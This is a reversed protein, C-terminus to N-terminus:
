EVQFYKPLSPELTSSTSCGVMHVMMLVLAQINEITHAAMFDAAWM